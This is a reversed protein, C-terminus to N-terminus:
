PQGARPVDGAFGDDSNDAKCDIPGVEKEDEMSAEGKEQQEGGRLGELTKELEWIRRQMENIKEVDVKHRNEAEERYIRLAFLEDSNNGRGARPNSSAFVRRPRRESRERQSTEAGTYQVAEQLEAM